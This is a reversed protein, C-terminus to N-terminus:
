LNLVVLILEGTGCDHKGKSHAFDTTGDAKVVTLTDNKIDMKLKQKSFKLAGEQKVQFSFSVATTKQMSGRHVILCLDM